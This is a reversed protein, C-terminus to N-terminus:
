GLRMQGTQAKGRHRHGRPGALKLDFNVNYWRLTPHDDRSLEAFNNKSKIRRAKPCLGEGGSTIATVLDPPIPRGKYRRTSRHPSSTESPCVAETKLTGLTLWVFYSCLRLLSSLKGDVETKEQTARRDQFHLRNTGGFSETSESSSPTIFWYM